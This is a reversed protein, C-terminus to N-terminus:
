ANIEQEPFTIVTGLGPITVGPSLTAGSKKPPNPGRMGAPPPSAAVVWGVPLNLDTGPYNKKWEVGPNAAMLDAGQGGFKDAMKQTSWDGEQTTYGFTGDPRTHTGKPYTKGGPPSGGPPPYGVPPSGAPPAVTGMIGPPLSLVGLGPVTVQFGGGPLPVVTAGPPLADLSPTPPVFGPTPQTGPLPPRGGPVPMTATVGPAIPVPTGPPTGFRPKIPTVIDQNKRLYDQEADSTHTPMASPAPPIGYVTGGPGTVSPAPTQDIGQWNTGEFPSGKQSEAAAKSWAEISIPYAIPPLGQSQRGQNCVALYTQATKPYGTTQMQMAAALYSPWPLGSILSAEAADRAPPPLNDDFLSSPDTRTDGGKATGKQSYAYLAAAAAIAVPVLPLPM